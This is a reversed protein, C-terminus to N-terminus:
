YCFRYGVSFMLNRRTYLKKFDADQSFKVATETFDNLFRMDAFFANNGMKYKVEFGCLVGANPYFLPLWTRTTNFVYQETSTQNKIVICPLSFYFGAFPTFYFNEYNFSYNAYVPIDFVPVTYETFVASDDTSSSFNVGNNLIASLEFGAGFGTDKINNFQFSLSVGYPVVANRKVANFSSDEYSFSNIGATLLGGFEYIFNQAFVLPSFIVFIFLFISKKMNQIRVCNNLM